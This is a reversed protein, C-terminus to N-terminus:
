GTTLTQFGPRDWGVGQAPYHLEEPHQHLVDTLGCEGRGLDGQAPVAEALHPGPRCVGAGPGPGVEWTIGFRRHQGLASM